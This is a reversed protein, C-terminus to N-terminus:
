PIGLALIRLVRQRSGDSKVTEAFQSPVTEGTVLDVVHAEKEGTSPLDAM